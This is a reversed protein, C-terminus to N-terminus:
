PPSLMAALEPFDCGLESGVVFQTPGGEDEESEEVTVTREEEQSQSSGM